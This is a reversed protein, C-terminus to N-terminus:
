LEPNLLTLTCGSILPFVVYLIYMSDVLSRKTNFKVDQNPQNNTKIIYSQYVAILSRFEGRGWQILKSILGLTIMQLAGYIHASFYNMEM